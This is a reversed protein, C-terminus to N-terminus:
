APLHTSPVSTPSADHPHPPESGLGLQWWGLLSVSVSSLLGEVEKQQSSGSSPKAVVLGAVWDPVVTCPVAQMVRPLPGQLLPLILILLPFLLLPGPLAGQALSSSHNTLHNM